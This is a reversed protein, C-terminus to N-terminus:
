LRKLVMSTGGQGDPQDDVVRYQIGRVTVIDSKTPAAPLDSLRIGIMPSLSSIAVGTTPDVEIHASDFVLKIAFAAGGTHSYTAGVVDFTNVCAGLLGETMDEWAM